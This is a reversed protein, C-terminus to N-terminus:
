GASLLSLRIMLYECICVEIMSSLFLLLPLRIWSNWELKFLFELFLKKQMKKLLLCVGVIYIECLETDWMKSSLSILFNQYHNYILINLEWTKNLFRNHKRSKYAKERYNNSFFSCSMNAKTDNSIMKNLLRRGRSM